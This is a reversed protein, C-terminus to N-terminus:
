SARSLTILQDPSEALELAVDRYPTTVILTCGPYGSVLLRAHRTEAVNELLFLLRKGRQGNHFQWALHEVKTTSKLISIRMADLWLRLISEFDDTSNLVAWLVGDPFISPIEEKHAVAAVIDAADQNNPDYLVILPPLHAIDTTLMQWLTALEQHYCASSHVPKPLLTRPQKGTSPSPIDDGSLYQGRRIREYTNQIDLDPARGQERELIRALLHYQELAREAQNSLVYLHMTLHHAEDNYPDMELWRAAMKLGSDALGQQTYYRTLAAVVQTAQYQFGIRHFGQWDDWEASGRIHFDELFDGRYLAEASQL